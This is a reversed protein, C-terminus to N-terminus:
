ILPYTPTGQVGSERRFIEPLEPLDQYNVLVIQRSAAKNLFSTNKDINMNKATTILLKRVSNGGMLEAVSNFKDLVLKEDPDKSKSSSTKCEALLLTGSRTAVFDLENSIGQKFIEVGTMVDDFVSSKVAAWYTYTELWGGDFFKRLKSLKKTHIACPITLRGYSNFKRKGVQYDDILGAKKSPGLLRTLRDSILEIELVNGTLREDMILKVFRKVDDPCQILSRAFNIEEKEPATYKIEWGYTKLYNQVDIKYLDINPPKGKLVEVQRSSSALYWISIDLDKMMPLAVDYAALALVKPGCTINFVWEFGPNDKLIRLCADYSDRWSEGNVVVPEQLGEPCLQRLIPVVSSWERNPQMSEHTAVPFINDPQFGQASLVNPIQRGGILLLLAKKKM